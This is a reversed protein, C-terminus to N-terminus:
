TANKAAIASNTSAAVIVDVKLRVLEQALAPLRDMKNDARRYEFTVNKNEIYGLDRLAQRTIDDGGIEDAEARLFLWGIKFVKASQQAEVFVCPAVLLAVLALCFINKKMAGETEGSM